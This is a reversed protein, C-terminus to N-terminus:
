ATPPFVCQCCGTYHLPRLHSFYFQYSLSLRSDSKGVCPGTDQSFWLAFPVHLGLFVAAGSGIALVCGAVQLLLNSHLFSTGSLYPLSNRM